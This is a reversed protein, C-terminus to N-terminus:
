VTGEFVIDWVRMYVQKAHVASTYNYKLCIKKGLDPRVVPDSNLYKM